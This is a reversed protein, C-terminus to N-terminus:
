VRKKRNILKIGFGIFLGAILAIPLSNLFVYIDYEIAFIIPLTINLSLYLFGGVFFGTQWWNYKSEEKPDKSQENQQEQIRKNKKRWYSFFYITVITQTTLILFLRTLISMGSTGTILNGILVATLIM